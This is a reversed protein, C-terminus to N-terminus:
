SVRLFPSKSGTLIKKWSSEFVPGMVVPDHLLAFSSWFTLCAKFEEQGSISRDWPEKKALTGIWSTILDYQRETASPRAIVVIKTTEEGIKGIPAVRSPLNRNTRYAFLAQDGVELPTASVVGTRGILKGMDIEGEYKQANAPLSIKKIAGQLLGLVEPHAQLHSEAQRSIFITGGCKTAYKTM